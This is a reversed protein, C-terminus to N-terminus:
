AGFCLVVITFSLIAAALVFTLVHWFIVCCDDEYLCDDFLCCRKKWCLLLPVWGVLLLGDIIFLIIMGAGDNMFNGFHHTKSDVFWSTVYNLGNSHYSHSSIYHSFSSYQLKRKYSSPGKNCEVQIDSKSYSTTSCIDLSLDRFFSQIETETITKEIEKKTEKQPLLNDSFKNNNAELSTVINLFFIYIFFFLFINNKKM